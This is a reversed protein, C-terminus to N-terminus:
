IAADVDITTTTSASTGSEDIVTLTAEYTGPTAYTHEVAAGRAPPSGDDFRWVYEAVAGDPVTSESGDFTVTLPATGESPTAEIRPRPGAPTATDETAPTATATPTATTDPLAVASPETPTTVTPRETGTAVDTGDDGSTATRTATPGDDATAATDGCTTSATRDDVLIATSLSCTYTAPGDRPLRFARGTTPDEFVLQLRTAVTTRENRRVHSTFWEDVNDNDMRVTVVIDRREGPALTANRGIGEPTLAAGQTRFLAVDNMDIRAGLGDPVAPLPTAGVNEVDFHFRVTTQEDSVTGWTAWGRHVEYGVTTAESDDLVGEAPGSETATYRGATGNAAASLADSVPTANALMTRNETVTHATSLLAQVRIDVAADLHVTENARVFAVWWPALNDNRLYTSLTTTSEGRPIDVGTKSGNALAVGNLEANYTASLGDGISVGIPNPNSVGLTTVIETREDTVTGWDGSDAVTVSPPTLLLYVGAFVVGLIAVVLLARQKNM